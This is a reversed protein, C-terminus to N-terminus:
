SALKQQNESDIKNLLKLAINHSSIQNAKWQNILLQLEQIRGEAAQIKQLTNM